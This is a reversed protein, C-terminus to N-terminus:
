VISEEQAICTFESQALERRSATFPYDEKAEQWRRM